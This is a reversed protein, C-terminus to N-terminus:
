ILGKLREALCTALAMWCVTKQVMGEARAICSSFDQECKFTETQPVYFRALENKLETIAEGLLVLSDEPIPDGEQLPQFYEIIVFRAARSAKAITPLETETATIEIARLSSAARPAAKDFDAWDKIEDSSTM